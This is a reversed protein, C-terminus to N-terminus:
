RTSDRPPDFSVVVDDITRGQGLENGQADAIRKALDRLKVNERQSAAVLVAFAAEPGIEMSHMLVGKAQEIVSRHEMAARLGEVEAILEAIRADSALDARAGTAAAVDDRVTGDQLMVVPRSWARSSAGATGVTAMSAVYPVEAEDDGVLLRPAGGLM